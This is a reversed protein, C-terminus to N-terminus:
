DARRLDVIYAGPVHDFFDAIEWAGDAELIAELEERSPMLYDFWATAVRGHRVRLRMQGALRGRQRNLEHYALHEPADTRHADRGQAIVRANPTGLERLAQLFGAATEPGELLGLNAGMLLFTEFSSHKQEALDYVTGEFTARVGRRRCVELAGASVDLAVVERGREQLALSYRGAGAGIDLVRGRARQLVWESDPGDPPSFYVAPDGVDIDGDDREIVQFTRGPEAGAEDCALLTLGFADGLLPEM